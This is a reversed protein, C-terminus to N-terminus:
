VQIGVSRLAEATREESPGDPLASLKLVADAIRKENAVLMAALLDDAQTRTRKAIREVVALTARVVVRVEDQNMAM